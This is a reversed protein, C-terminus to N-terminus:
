TGGILRTRAKLLRSPHDSIVGDCGLRALEVIRDTSNETWAYVDLDALHARDILDRGVHGAFPHLSVAALQQAIDFALHYDEDHWLVGVPASASIARVEILAEPNFSSFVVRDMAGREEVALVSAAALRRADARSGRCKLELNLRAEPLVQDLTEELTPVLQGAFAADKWAGADFSRLLDFELEAIGGQGDTTREATWDHIIVVRGDATLQLDCEIM